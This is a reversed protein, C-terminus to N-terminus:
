LLLYCFFFSVFTRFISCWRSRALHQECSSSRPEGRTHARHETAAMRLTGISEVPARRGTRAYAHQPHAHPAAVRGQVWFVGSSQQDSEGAALVLLVSCCSWGCDVVCVAGDVTDFGCGALGGGRIPAHSQRSRRPPRADVRGRWIPRASPHIARHPTLCGM